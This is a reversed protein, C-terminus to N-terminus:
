SGLLRSSPRPHAVFQPMAHSFTVTCLHLPGFIQSCGFIATFRNSQRASRQATAAPTNHIFDIERSTHTTHSFMSVTCTHAGRTASAVM